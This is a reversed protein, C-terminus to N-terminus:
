VLPESCPLFVITCLFGNAHVSQALFSFVVLSFVLSLGSLMVSFWKLTLLLGLFSFANFIIQYDPTGYAQVLAGV